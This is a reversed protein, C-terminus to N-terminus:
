EIGKESAFKARRREVEVVIEAGSIADPTHQEIRDICGQVARTVENFVADIQQESIVQLRRTKALAMSDRFLRAALDLGDKDRKPQEATGYHRERWEKYSPFIEDISVLQVESEDITM